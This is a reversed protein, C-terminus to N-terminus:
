PLQQGAAACVSLAYDWDRTATAQSPNGEFDKLFASVRSVCAALQQDKQTASAIQQQQTSVTARLGTVQAGSATLASDAANLRASTTSLHQQEATLSHRAASLSQRVGMDNIVGLTLAVVAFGGAAMGAIKWKMRRRSPTAERSAPTPSGQPAAAFGTGVQRADMSPGASIPQGDAEASIHVLPDM